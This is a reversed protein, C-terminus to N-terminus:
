CVIKMFFAGGAAMLPLAITPVSNKPGIILFLLFSSVVLVIWFTTYAFSVARKIILSDREDCVVKDAGQPKKFFFRNFRLIVLPAIFWFGITSFGRIHVEIAIATTMIIITGIIVILNLWAIKQYRNM